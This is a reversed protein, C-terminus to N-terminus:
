VRTTRHILHQPPPVTKSTTWILCGYGVVKLKKKESNNTQATKNQKKACQIKHKQYLKMRYIYKKLIKNM